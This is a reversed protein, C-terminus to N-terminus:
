QLSKANQNTELYLIAKYLLKPNDQLMGIGTNCTSCLTGRFKDIKHCHDWVLNKTSDCIECKTGLQDKKIQRYARKYLKSRHNADTVCRWQNKGRNAIKTPGCVACIAEKCNTDKNSLRHRFKKTQSGSIIEGHRLKRYYCAVCFGRARLPKGCECLKGNPKIPESSM